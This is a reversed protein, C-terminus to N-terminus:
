QEGEPEVRHYTGEDDRDEVVLEVGIQAPDFQPFNSRLLEWVTEGDPVVNGEETAFTVVYEVCEFTYAM